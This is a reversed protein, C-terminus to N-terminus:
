KKMNQCAATLYVQMQAYKLRRFWAYRYSHLEKADTFSQEITSCRVKYLRKRTATLKNKRVIDKYKEWIYHTIVNQKKSFCDKHLPCVARDEPNSKYQRYRKRGNDCIRFYM